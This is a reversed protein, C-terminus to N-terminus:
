ETCSIPREHHSEPPNHRPVTDKSYRELVRRVEGRESTWLRIWRTSSSLPSPKVSLIAFILAIGCLIKRWRVPPEPTKTEAWRSQLVEVGLTEEILHLDGRGGGFLDKFIERFSERVLSFTELFRKEIEKEVTERARHIERIAEEVDARGAAILEIRDSVERLEEEAKLNVSGLAGLAEDLEETKQLAQARTVREFPVSSLDKIGFESSIFEETDSFAQQQAELEATTEEIRVLLAVSDREIRAM